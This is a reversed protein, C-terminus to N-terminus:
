LPTTFTQTLLAYSRYNRSSLMAESNGRVREEGASSHELSMGGTVAWSAAQPHVTQFDPFTGQVVWCGRETGPLFTSCCAMKCPALRLAATTGKCQRLGKERRVKHWQQKEAGERSLSPSRAIMMAVPAALSEARTCSSSTGGEWPSAGPGGRGRLGWPLVQSLALARWPLLTQIPRGHM